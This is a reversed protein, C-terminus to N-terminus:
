DGTRKDIGFFRPGSWRAGTIHRAIASLSRWERGDMVYGRETVEVRYTRGNWERVLQAGAKARPAPGAGRALKALQKETKASVRGLAQNQVEWCIVRKMFAVSLHPPPSRRFLHRWKTVLGDRDLAEVAALLGSVDRAVSRAPERALGQGAEDWSFLDEHM